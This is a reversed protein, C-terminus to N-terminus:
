NVFRRMRVNMVLGLALFVFATASGGYSMLPLPIGTVPMYGIVMSANVLVHFGLIATVGMVVYMGARDKAKQANDVLRLILGLYLLLVVCVGIFGQEEALAALIFDSYRVPVFGLQNQSGKGFGKGWFGGSGVAIESQLIQYGAGRQDQEPHLFTEIRQQQYPKLHRRMNWALPILLGILLVGVLLHKWEIGAFFAGIVAVPVLMMATGLDPQKLILVVPILTLVGIKFLDALTLRDTRVEAFYRALVIIIILKMIESVQLNAIGGISIWRKAGLRSYGIVLVVLLSVVGFMYLAPAQDLLTHYDIRSILAMGVLGIGIWMLQKWQMGVMASAHTSSYIELVGIGSIAGVIGLLTWDIDQISSHEKM